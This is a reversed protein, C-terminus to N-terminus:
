YILHVGVKRKNGMFVWRNNKMEQLFFASQKTNESKLVMHPFYIIRHMYYSGTLGQENLPSDQPM